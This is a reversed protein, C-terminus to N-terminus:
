LWSSQFSSFKLLVDSFWLMSSSGSNAIIIIIFSIICATNPFSLPFGTSDHYVKSPDLRWLGIYLVKSCSIEVFLFRRTQESIHSLQALSVFFCKSFGITQFVCNSNGTRSEKYSSVLAKFHFTKPDINPSACAEAEAESKSYISHWEECSFLQEFLIMMVDTQDSSEFVNKGSIKHFSYSWFVTLNEFHRRLWEM